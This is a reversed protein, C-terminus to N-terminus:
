PKRILLPSHLKKLQERKPKKLQRKRRCSSHKRQRGRKRKDDLNRSSPKREPQLRMRRWSASPRSRKKLSVSPKKNKRLKEKQKKRQQRSDLRKKQRQENAPKSRKQLKVRLTRKRLMTSRREQRWREVYRLARPASLHRKRAGM